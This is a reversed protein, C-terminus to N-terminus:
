RFEEIEQVAHHKALMSDAPHTRQRRLLATKKNDMQPNVQHSYCKGNAMWVSFGWYFGTGFFGLLSTKKFVRNKPWISRDYIQDIQGRPIIAGDPRIEDGLNALLRTSLRSFTPHRL